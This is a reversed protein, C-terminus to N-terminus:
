TEAIEGLLALFLHAESLDCGFPYGAKYQVMTELAAVLGYAECTPAPAQNKVPTVYDIGNVDRWDFSVPLDTSVTTKQAGSSPSPVLGIGVFLLLIGIAVSKTTLDHIVM